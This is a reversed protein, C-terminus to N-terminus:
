VGLLQNKVPWRGSNFLHPCVEQTLPAPPATPSQPREEPSRDKPPQRAAVLKSLAEDVEAAVRADFEEHTIGLRHLLFQYPNPQPAQAASAKYRDLLSPRSTSPHALTVRDCVQPRCVTDQNIPSFPGEGAAIGPTARPSGQSAASPDDNTITSRPGPLDVPHSGWVSSKLPGFTCKQKNRSTPPAKACKAVQM